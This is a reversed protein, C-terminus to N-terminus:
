MLSDNSSLPGSNFLGLGEISFSSYLPFIGLFVFSGLGFVLLVESVSFVLVSNTFDLFCTACAMAAGATIVDSFMVPKQRKTSSSEVGREYKLM